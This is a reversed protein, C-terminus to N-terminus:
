RSAGPTLGRRLKNEAEGDAGTPSNKKLCRAVTARPVQCVQAIYRVSHGADRMEIAKQEVEHTMRRPRGWAGGKAEVRVRAASIRENIALREMKAAWALVALVIEAAPGAVDFGDAVTVLECGHRRLEDVVELTDRIGSRALRDLRYVYLKRVDGARTAARLKGLEPRDIRGGTFTESYWVAIEDGRARAAREIADRQMAATQSASSVRVYATANLGERNVPVDQQLV